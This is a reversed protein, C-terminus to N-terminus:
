YAKYNKLLLKRALKKLKNRMKAEREFFDAELGFPREKSPTFFHEKPLSEYISRPPDNNKLRKGGEYTHWFIKKFGNTKAFDSIVKIAINPFDKITAAYKDLLLNMQEDTLNYQKKIKIYIEEGDGQKQKIKYLANQHDSQIEDVLIYSTAPEKVPHLEVRIWGIQDKKYPHTNTRSLTNISDFLDYLGDMEKFSDLMEKSALINIVLQSGKGRVSRQLSSTWQSYAIPFSQNQQASEYAVIAELTIDKGRLTRILDNLGAALRPHKKNLDKVSIPVLKKLLDLYKSKKNYVTEQLKAYQSYEQPAGGYKENCKECIEDGDPSEYVESKDFDNNCESCNFYNNNYCHQCFEGVDEVYRSEDRTIVESCNECYSFMESFCDECYYDRDHVSSEEKDVIKSCNECKASCKTCGGLRRGDYARRTNKSTPPLIDEYYVAEDCAPCTRFLTQYCENCIHKQYDEIIVNHINKKFVFKKCNDCESSDKHCYYQDDDPDIIFDMENRSTIGCANCKHEKFQFELQPKEEEPPM